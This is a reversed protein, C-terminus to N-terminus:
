LYGRRQRMLWEAILGLILLLVFFPNRTLKITIVKSFNKMELQSPSPITKFIKGGTLEAIRMLMLSDIGEQQDEPSARVVMFSLNQSGITDGKCGYFLKATIKGIKQVKVPASSFVGPKVEFFNVSNKGIKMSVWGSELYRGKYDKLIAHVKIPETNAFLSKEPYAIFIVKKKLLSDAYASILSDFILPANIAVKWFDSCSIWVTNKTFVFLGQEKGDKFIKVCDTLPPIEKKM